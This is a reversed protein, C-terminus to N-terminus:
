KLDLCLAPVIGFICNEVRNTAFDDDRSRNIYSWGDFYVITACNSYFYLPTRLWWCGGYGNGPDQYAFTAKAYDTNHKIRTNGVGSSIHSADFGYATTTAEKISLLFIKDTTNPCIYNGYAGRSGDAEYIVGDTTSAASNDVTTVVILKQAADTFATQLFGKNAYDTKSQTDSSEYTGNLYARVTSYKYNNAYGGKSGITRENSNVYYKVNGKLIEESLLLAKKSGNYNTTIVKWKIPEVKFYRRSEESYKKPMTGDSYKYETGTGYANEQLKKYYEGDSGKYYKYNGMSVFVTEDVTVTSDLPLVTRPFVGFYIYKSSKTAPLGTKADVPTEYLNPKTLIETRVVAGCVTCKYTKVGDSTLTAPTTVTGSDETHPAIDENHALRGCDAAHWHNTEDFTWSNRDVNHNHNLLPIIRTDRYSCVGCLREELGDAEDTAPTVETWNEPFAHESKDKTQDTHGCTAAHWHHTSSSSWDSSYTHSHVPPFYLDDGGGGSCGLIGFSLVGALAMFALTKLKKM